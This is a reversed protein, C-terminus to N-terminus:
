LQKVGGLDPVNQSILVIQGDSFLVSLPSYM